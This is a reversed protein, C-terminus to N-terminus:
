SEVKPASSSGFCLYVAYFIMIVIGGVGIGFGAYFGSPFDRCCDSADESCCLFNDNFDDLGPVDSEKAEECKTTTPDYINYDDWFDHDRVKFGTCEHDRLTLACQGPCDEPNARTFALLCSLLVLLFKM